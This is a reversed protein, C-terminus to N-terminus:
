KKTNQFGRITNRQISFLPVVMYQTNIETITKLDYETAIKDPSCDSSLKFLGFLYYCDGSFKEVEKETQYIEGNTQIEEEETIAYSNGVNNPGVDPKYYTDSLTCASIVLTSIILIKKM